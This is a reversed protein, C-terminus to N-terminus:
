FGHQAEVASIAIIHVGVERQATRERDLAPDFEIGADAVLVRDERSGAREVGVKM